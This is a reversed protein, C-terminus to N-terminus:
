FYSIQMAHCFPRPRGQAILPRYRWNRITATLIQAFAPSATRDVTIQHVTGRDSVCIEVLATLPRIDRVNDPLDPYPDDLRLSQAVSASVYTPPPAPARAPAPPTAQNVPGYPVRSLPEMATPVSPRPLPAARDDSRVQALVFSRATAANPAPPPLPRRRPEPPRRAARPGASFHALEPGFAFPRPTLPDVWVDVGTIVLADAQADPLSPAHRAPSAALAVVTALHFLASAAAAKTLAGSTRSGWRSHESRM